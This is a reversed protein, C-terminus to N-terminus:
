SAGAEESEELDIVTIVFDPDDRAVVVKIRRPGPRPPYFVAPEAIGVPLGGSV